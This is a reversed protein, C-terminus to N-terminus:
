NSSLQKETYEKTRQELTEFYQNLLNDIQVDDSLLPKQIHVVAMLEGYHYSQTFESTKFRAVTYNMSTDPIGSQHLVEWIRKPIYRSDPYFTLMGGPKLAKIALELVEKNSADRNVEEATNPFADISIADFQEGRDVANQLVAKFDGQRIDLEGKHPPCEEQMLQETSRSLAVVDFKEGSDISEQWVDALAGQRLDLTGNFENKLKEGVQKIVNKNLEAVVQREPDIGLKVLEKNLLGLGLGAIFIKSDKNQTMVNAIAEASKKVWEIEEDTMVPHEVMEGKQNPVSIVLREVGEITEIRIDGDRFAELANEPAPFDDKRKKIVEQQPNVEAELYAPNNEDTTIQEFMGRRFKERRVETPSPLRGISQILERVVAEDENKAREMDFDGKLFESAIENEYCAHYKVSPDFIEFRREDVVHGRGYAKEWELVKPTHDETKKVSMAEQETTSKIQEPAQKM